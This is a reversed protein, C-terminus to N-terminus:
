PKTDSKGPAGGKSSECGLKIGRGVCGTIFHTALFGQQSEPARELFRFFDNRYDKNRALWEMDAWVETAGDDDSVAHRAIRRM